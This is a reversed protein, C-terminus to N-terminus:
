VAGPGAALRTHEWSEMLASSDRTSIENVYCELERARHAATHKGLVRSRARAAVDQLRVEDLERLYRLTDQSSRAVLIERDPIFFERLGAWEDTIIPVGCAAAEFLRVSPSYGSAAMDARTVNLTLRQSNYFSRHEAPALHEARVVNAPWSLSAPYQAGAVYFAGQPWHTAPEVLLEHLTPQRDVSYTGLYGLDYRKTAGPIPHYDCPEVSCYLARARQAGFREELKRLVPGGAFSLYLDFKPVLERTLYECDGRELRAVTVPTDIDYFATRGSVRPLYQEILQAGQPVYSGFVVLDAQLTGPLLSDLEDLGSYLQVECYSPKPLDRNGAYWPVDREFFRVRHGRRALARVLARYTTAHGNGWSSTISLGFIVIDLCDPTSM